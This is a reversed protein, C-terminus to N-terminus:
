NGAFNAYLVSLLRWHRKIKTKKIHSCVKDRGNFSIKVNEQLNAQPSPHVKAAIVRSRLKLAPSFINYSAKKVQKFRM